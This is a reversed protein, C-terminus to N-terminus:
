LPKSAKTSARKAMSDVTKRAQDVTMTDNDKDSPADAGQFYVTGKEPDAPDIEINTILNSLPPLLSQDKLQKGTMSIGMDNAMNIFAALDITKTADTDTSRSLLFEGLAVLKQTDLSTEFEFLRM